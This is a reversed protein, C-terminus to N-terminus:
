KIYEFYTALEQYPIGQWGIDDVGHFVLTLWINDHVLLTDVWSKMLEMPTDSLPGRQWQVYEKDYSGPATKNGRNLEELYSHPMRNRLAPFLEYAYEM